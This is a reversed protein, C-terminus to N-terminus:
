PLFQIHLVVSQTTPLTVVPANGALTFASDGTFSVGSIAVPAAGVNTLTVDQTSSRGVFATTFNLPSPTASLQGAVGSGLLAVHTQVDGDVTARTLTLIATADAVASPTFTVDL